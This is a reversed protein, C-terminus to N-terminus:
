PPTPGTNHASRTLGISIRTLGPLHLFFETHLSLGTKSQCEWTRGERERKLNLYCNRSPSWVEFIRLEKQQYCWALRHSLSREVTLPRYTQAIFVCFWVLYLIPWTATCWDINMLALRRNIQKKIVLLCFSAPQPGLKLFIIPFAGSCITRSSSFYKMFQEMQRDTGEKGACSPPFQWSM